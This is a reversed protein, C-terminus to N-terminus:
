TIDVEFWGFNVGLFSWHFRGIEDVSSLWGEGGGGLEGKLTIKSFKGFQILRSSIKFGVWNQGRDVSFRNFLM